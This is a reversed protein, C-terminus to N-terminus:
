LAASRVASVLMVMEAAPDGVSLTVGALPGAPVVKLKLPLSKRGPSWAMTTVTLPSDAPLTPLLAAPAMAKVKDVAALM